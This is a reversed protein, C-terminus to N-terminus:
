HVHRILLDRKHFRLVNDREWGIFPLPYPEHKFFGRIGGRDRAAGLWVLWADPENFIFAPDLIQERPADHKVPRGMLFLDPTSIVYGNLLHLALDQKFPRACAEREYVEAASEIPARGAM